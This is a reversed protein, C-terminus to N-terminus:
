VHARREGESLDDTRNTDHDSARRRGVRDTGPRHEGVDASPIEGLTKCATRHGRRRKPDREYALEDDDETIKPKIAFFLQTHRRGKKKIHHHRSKNVHAKKALEVM